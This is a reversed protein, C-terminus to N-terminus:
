RVVTQWAIGSFYYKQQRKLKFLNFNFPLNKKKKCYLKLILAWKIFVLLYLGSRPSVELERPKNQGELLFPSKISNKSIKPWKQHGNTVENVKLLLRLLKLFIGLFVFFICFIEFIM